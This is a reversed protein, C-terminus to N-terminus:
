PQATKKSRSRNTTSGAYDPQNEARCRENAVSSKECPNAAPHESLRDPTLLGGGTGTRIGDIDM